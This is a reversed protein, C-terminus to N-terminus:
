KRARHLELEAERVAEEVVRVVQEEEEALWSRQDVLEEAAAVESTPLKASRQARIRRTWFPREKGGAASSSTGRGEDRLLRGEGAHSLLRGGSARSVALRADPSARVLLAFAAALAAAAAAFALALARARGAADELAGAEDRAAEAELALQEAAKVSQQTQQTQVQLAAGCSAPPAPPAPPAGAFGAPDVLANASAVAALWRASAKPHRRQTAYDTYVLGFRESYGMEWEFNDLLSRCSPPAASPEAVRCGGGGGRGGRSARPCWAYYDRTIQTIEPLRPCWAYYGRVDVGDEYIARRLESTYNALFRVRSGDAVQM